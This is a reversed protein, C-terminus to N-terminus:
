FKKKIKLLAFCLGYIFHKVKLRSLRKSTASCDNSFAALDGSNIKMTYLDSIDGSFYSM